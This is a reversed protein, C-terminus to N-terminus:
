RPVWNQKRDKYEHTHSTRTTCLIRVLSHHSFRGAHIATDRSQLSHLDWIGEEMRQLAARLELLRADAKFDLYYRIPISKEVSQAYREHLIKVLEKEMAIRAAKRQEANM